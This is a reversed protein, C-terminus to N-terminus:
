RKVFIINLTKCINYKLNTILSSWLYLYTEVSRGPPIGGGRKEMKGEESIGDKWGRGEGRVTERKGEEKIGDERGRGEEEYRRGNNRGGEGEEEREVRNENRGSFNVVKLNFEESYNEFSKLDKTFVLSKPAFELIRPFHFIEVM